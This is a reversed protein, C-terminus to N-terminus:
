GEQVCREALAKRYEARVKRVFDQTAWSMENGQAAAPPCINIKGGSALYEAIAGQSASAMEKKVFAMTRRRFLATVM